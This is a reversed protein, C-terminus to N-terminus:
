GISKFGYLRQYPIPVANPPDIHVDVVVAKDSNLADALLPKLDERRTITIGEAGLSQALLAFDINPLKVLTETIGGFRVREYVGLVRYASDNFVIIRPKAGYQVATSVELGSMLFGGDGVLAVVDRDPYIISAAVAGPVALGGMSVYSTSTIYSEGEYIPM